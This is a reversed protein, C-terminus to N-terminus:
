LPLFLIVFLKQCFIIKAQKISLYHYFNGTFVCHIQGLKDIKDLLEVKEDNKEKITRNSVEVAFKLNSIEERLESIESKQQKGINIILTKLKNVETQSLEADSQKLNSIYKELLNVEKTTIKRQNTNVIETLTCALIETLIKSNKEYQSTLTAIDNLDKSKEEYQSSLTAIKGELNGAQDAFCMNELKLRSVEKEM